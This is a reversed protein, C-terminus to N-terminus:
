ALWIQTLHITLENQEDSFHTSIWFVFLLRSICKWSKFSLISRTGDLWTWVTSGNISGRWVDDALDVALKCRVITWGKNLLVSENLDLNIVIFRRGSFCLNHVPYSKRWHSQSMPRMGCRQLKHEIIPTNIRRLGEVSQVVPGWLTRRAIFFIEKSQFLLKDYHSDCLRDAPIEYCVCM